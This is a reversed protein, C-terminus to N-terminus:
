LRKLFTKLFGGVVFSQLVNIIYTRGRLCLRQGMQELFRGWHSGRHAVGEEFRTGNGTQPFWKAGLVWLRQRRGDKNDQSSQPPMDHQVDRKKELVQCLSTLKLWQANMCSCSTSVLSVLISPPWPIIPVFPPLFPCGSNVLRRHLKFIPPFMRSYMREKGM